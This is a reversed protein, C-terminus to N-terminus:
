GVLTLHDYRAMLRRVRGLQERSRTLHLLQGPGADGFMACEARYQSSAEMIGEETCSLLSYGQEDQETWYAVFEGLTMRPENIDIDLYRDKM